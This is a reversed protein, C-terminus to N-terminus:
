PADDFREFQLDPASTNHRSPITRAFRVAAADMPAFGVVPATRWPAAPATRWGVQATDAMDPRVFMSRVAAFPGAGTIAPDLAVSLRLERRDVDLVKVRAEGGAAFIARFTLTKPDIEVRRIRVFPRRDEEIPGVLFSSGYVAEGFQPLPLPRIRWYGDAAHLVLVEQLRGGRKLMLQILHFGVDKHGAVEVEVREPRWYRPYTVGRIVIRDDEYLTATRATFPYDHAASIACHDFNPRRNDTRLRAGYAPQRAAAEFRRVAGSMTVYVNDEEACLTARGHDRVQVARPAAVAFASVCLAILALSPALAYRTL